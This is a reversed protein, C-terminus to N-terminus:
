DNKTMRCIINQETVAKYNKNMFPIPAATFTSVYVDEGVKVNRCDPGIAIVKACVIGPQNSEIEGTENSKHTKAEFGLLLGSESTEIQKYPNEKYFQLIVNTNCPVIKIEETMNM